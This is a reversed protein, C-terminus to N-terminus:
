AKARAGAALARLEAAEAAPLAAAQAGWQASPTAPIGQVSFGRQDEVLHAARAPPLGLEARAAHMTALRATLEAGAGPKSAAWGGSYSDRRVAESLYHIYYTRRTTAGLNVRSGHPTSVAHFLVDGPEMRVPVAGCRTFLEEQDRDGLACTGLLHRGPIAWVCGNDEDSRDLYIDTTFNPHAFTTTRQPDGYPPDQHWGVDPGDEALKVVLSDNWPYCPEGSCQAVATVLDPDLAVARFIAQRAFMRESRWYIRGRPGERYLQDAGREAIGDAVVEDAAARLLDLTRGTILGPIVLFGQRHFTDIADRTLPM